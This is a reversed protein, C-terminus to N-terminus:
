INEIDLSDFRWSNNTDPKFKVKNDFKKWAGWLWLCWFLWVWHFKESKCWWYWHKIRKMFKSIGVISNLRFFTKYGRPRTPFGLSLIRTPITISYERGTDSDLINTSSNCPLVYDPDTVQFIGPICDGCVIWTQTWVLYCTKVWHRIKIIESLDIGASFKESFVVIMFLFFISYPGYICM